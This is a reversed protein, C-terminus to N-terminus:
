IIRELIANVMILTDVLTTFTNSKTIVIETTRGARKLILYYENRDRKLLEIYLGQKFRDLLMNSYAIKEHLRYETSRTQM